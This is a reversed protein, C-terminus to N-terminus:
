NGQNQPIEKLNQFESLDAYLNDYTGKSIVAKSKISKNILSQSNIELNSKNSTRKVERKDKTLYHKRSMKISHLASKVNNQSSCLLM